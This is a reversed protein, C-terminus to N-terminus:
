RQGRRRRLLAMAASALLLLGSSPEPVAGMTFEFGGDYPEYDSIGETSWTLTYQGPSLPVLFEEWTNPTLDTSFVGGGGVADLSIQGWSSFGFDPNSDVRVGMTEPADETISLSGSASSGSRYDTYTSIGIQGDAFSVTEHADMAPSTQVWGFGWTSGPPDLNIGGEGGGGFVKGWTWYGTASSHAQAYTQPAVFPQRDYYGASVDLTGDTVIIAAGARSALVTLGVITTALLIRHNKM